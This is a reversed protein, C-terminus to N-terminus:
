YILVKFDVQENFSKFQFGTHFRTHIKLASKQAFTSSCKDCKHPRQKEGTFKLIRAGLRSDTENRIM